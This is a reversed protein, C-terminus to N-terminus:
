PAGACLIHMVIQPVSFAARGAASISFSLDVLHFTSPPYIETCSFGGGVGGGGGGGGGGGVKEWASPHTTHLKCAHLFYKSKFYM